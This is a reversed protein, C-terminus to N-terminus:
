GCVAEATTFLSALTKRCIENEMKWKINPM